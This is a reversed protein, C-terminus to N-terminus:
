NTNHAFSFEKIIKQAYQSIIPEDCVSLKKLYNMAAETGIMALAYLCKRNFECYESEYALNDCRYLAGLYLYEIVDERKDFELISALRDHFHHWPQILLPALVLDYKQTIDFHTLLMLMLDLEFENERVIADKLLSEVLDFDIENKRFFANLFYWDNKRKISIPEIGKYNYPENILRKILLDTQKQTM